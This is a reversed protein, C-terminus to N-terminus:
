LNEKFNQWYRKKLDLWDFHHTQTGYKEVTYVAVLGALRGVKPLPWNKLLGYILGARYADGAGTPDSTNKPKAPPIRTMRFGGFAALPDRYKIISGNKGLTTVFLKTKQLITKESWGTKKNILSIEYDNGILVESGLIAQKLQNGSLTSVQQGPDFIYPIKKRQFIEPLKFMDVPNQPSVIAMESKLNSIQSKLDAKLPRSMAGPYFGVIQNDVQDTIIYASATQQNPLIKIQSLDIKNKKLWKQYPLFDKAGVNTLISPKLGLLALNYAINGATGGFSEKLDKVLFSLNLQHIKDPLIHDSFKGPFDMIRDYALSGTVLVKM